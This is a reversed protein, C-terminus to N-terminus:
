DEGDGLNAGNLDQGTAPVVQHVQAAKSTVRDGQVTHAHVTAGAVVRKDAGRAAVHDEAAVAVVQDIAQGPVVVEVAPHAVVRNDGAIAVVDDVAIEAVIPEVALRPGVLKRAAVAVVAEAATIAG